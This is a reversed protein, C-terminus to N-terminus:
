IRMLIILQNGIGTHRILHFLILKMKQGPTVPCVKNIPSDTFRNWAERLSIKTIACAALWRDGIMKSLIEGDYCQTKNNAEYLRLLWEEAEAVFVKKQPYKPVSLLSHIEGHNEEYKIGLRAVNNAYIKRVTENQTSRWKKSIGSSHIRYKLLVRPINALPFLLSCRNWLELDEAHM